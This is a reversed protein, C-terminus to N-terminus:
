TDRHQVSNCAPRPGQYVNPLGCVLSPNLRHPLKKTHNFVTQQLQSRSYQPASRPLPARSFLTCPNQCALDAVDFPWPVIWCRSQSPSTELAAATLSATLRSGRERVSIWLTFLLMQIPKHWLFNAFTPSQLREAPLSSSNWKGLARSRTLTRGRPVGWPRFSRDM